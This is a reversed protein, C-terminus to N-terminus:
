VTKVVNPEWFVAKPKAESQKLSLKTVIAM